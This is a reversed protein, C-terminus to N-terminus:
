SQLGSYASISARLLLGRVPLTVAAQLKVRDARLLEPDCALPPVVDLLMFDPPSGCSLGAAVVSFKPAHQLSDSLQLWCGFQTSRNLRLRNRQRAGYRRRM